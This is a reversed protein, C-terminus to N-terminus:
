SHLIGVIIPMKVNILLFFLMKPKDSGQFASKRSIRISKHGNSIEHESNKIVESGPARKVLCRYRLIKTLEM